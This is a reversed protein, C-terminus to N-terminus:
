DSAPSIKSLHSVRAICEELVASVEDIMKGGSPEAESTGSNALLAGQEAPQMIGVDVRTSEKVTETDSFPWGGKLGMVTKPIDWGFRRGVYEKQM